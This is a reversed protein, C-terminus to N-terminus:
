RSIKETSLATESAGPALGNTQFSGNLLISPVSQMGVKDFEPIAYDYKNGKFIFPDSVDDSYDMLPAAHYMCMLIGHESATFEDRSSVSGVGKGAIDAATSSNQSNIGQLNTNVVEGIDLVSTNGGIWSCMNSLVDSVTVGFHKEIQDKYDQRGSLSIERWKQLAEAQRLALVSFGSIDSNSLRFSVNDLSAGQSYFGRSSGSLDLHYAFRSYGGNDPSGIFKATNNDNSGDASVNYSIDGKTQFDDGSIDGFLINGNTSNNIAAVDGYQPAPLLGTFLDKNWTAYNLDFFNAKSLNSSQTLSSLSIATSTSSLYDVNYRYPAANEWQTNRYYDQCIKQYALLPFANLQVSTSPGFYKVNASSNVDTASICGYGLLKLLKFSLLDRNFGFENLQEDRIQNLYNVIESSNFYPSRNSISAYSTMSNLAFQPNTRQTDTIFTPFFRWLLRYPVFFWDYYEKIRTFAASNVSMTRTFTSVNLKFKDGPIVEKSFVPLLEGVKATFLKRQSLDFASRNPKNKIQKLSM